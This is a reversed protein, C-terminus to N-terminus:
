QLATEIKTIIRDATKADTTERIIEFIKRLNINATQAAPTYNDQQYLRSPQSAQTKERMDEIHEIVAKIIYGGETKLRSIEARAKREKKEAQRFALMTRNRGEEDTFNGVDLIKTLEAKEQGAEDIKNFSSNVRSSDYYIKKLKSFFDKIKVELEYRAPNEEFYDRHANLILEDSVCFLEGIFYNIGRDEIFFKQLADNNGVQINGKRLRIGRMAYKKKIVGWFRSLGFWIWAILNNDKDRFEKFSLAFIEDEGMSTSLSQTYRKFLQEDNVYINYENIYLGLKKAHEHIETSFPMFAISYPLPAIFSLYERINRVDLLDTNGENIGELEVRFYHADTDETTETKFENFFDLVQSASYREIGSNNVNLLERIVGANCVLSSVVNEGKFKATFILMKCYGM